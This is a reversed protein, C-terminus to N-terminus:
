RVRFGVGAACPLLLKGKLKRSASQPRCSHDGIRYVQWCWVVLDFVQPVRLDVLFTCPCTFQSSASIERERERERKIVLAKDRVRYGASLQYRRPGTESVLYDRKGQLLELLEKVRRWHGNRIEKGM